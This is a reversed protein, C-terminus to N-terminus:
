EGYFAKFMRDTEAAYSRDYQPGGVKNRPDAIRADLEAESKSGSVSGALAPAQEGRGERIWQVLRNTSARDMTATLQAVVDPPMGQEAWAEVTAINERTIRDAAAARAKPDTVDPVLLAREAEASFPEAVLQGDVMAAMLDGFLGQFKAAPLGHKLALERTTQWFPDTELGAVYPALKESAEIKYEAAAKPVEGHKALAERAGTYAKLVNGLTAKEDAGVMHDPVGDRWWPSAAALAPDAATAATALAPDVTPAAAVAPSQDVAPAVASGGGDEPARLPHFLTLLTKM